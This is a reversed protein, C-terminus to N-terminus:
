ERQLGSIRHQIFTKLHLYKVGTYYQRANSVYELSAMALGLASNDFQHNGANVDEEYESDDEDGCESDDEDGDLEDGHEFTVEVSRVLQLAAHRDDNERIFATTPAARLMARHQASVQAHSGLINTGKSKNHHYNAGHQNLNIANRTAHDIKYYISSSDTTNTLNSLLKRLDKTNLSLRSYHSMGKQRRTVIIQSEAMLRM